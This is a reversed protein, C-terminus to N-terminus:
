ESSRSDPVGELDRKAKVRGVIYDATAILVSTSLAALFVGLNEKGTYGVAGPPRFPWPAYEPAGGSAAFRYIDYAELSLFLTLPFTGLMVIEARRLGRLVPAFEEEVYEEPDTDSGGDTQEQSHVTGALVSLAILVLAFRKGM